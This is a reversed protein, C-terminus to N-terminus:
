ADNIPEKLHERSVHDASLVDDVRDAMDTPWPVRGVEWASLESPRVGMLRSCDLLLLKHKIRWSRFKAGRETM